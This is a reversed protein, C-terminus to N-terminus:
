QKVGKTLKGDENYPKKRHITELLKMVEVTDVDKKGILGAMNKIVINLHEVQDELSAIRLILGEYDTREKVPIRM